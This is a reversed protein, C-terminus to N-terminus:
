KEALYDAFARCEEEMDERQFGYQTEFIRDLREDDALKIGVIKELRGFDAVDEANYTLDAYHRIKTKLEGSFQEPMDELADGEQADELIMVAHEVMDVLGYADDPLAEADRLPQLIELAEQYKDLAKESIEKIIPNLTAADPFDFGNREKFFKQFEGHHTAVEKTKIDRAPVTDMPVGDWGALFRGGWSYDLKLDGNPNEKKRQEKYPGIIFDRFAGYNNEQIAVYFSGKEHKAVKEPDSVVTRIDEIILFDEGEQLGSAQAWERIMEAKHKVEREWAERGYPDLEAEAGEQAVAEFEGSTEAKSM